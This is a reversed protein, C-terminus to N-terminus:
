TRSSAAQPPPPPSVVADLFEDETERDRSRITYFGDKVANNSTSSSSAGGVQAGLGGMAMRSLIGKGREAAVRRVVIRTGRPLIMSEDDYVENTTANQISLDFELSTNNSSSSNLKKANVIAKKIDFLRASTGPLPLPEFSTGSRFKYLITSAM